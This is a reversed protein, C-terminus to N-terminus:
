FRLSPQLPYSVPTVTTTTSSFWSEEDLKENVDKIECLTQKPGMSANLPKIYSM